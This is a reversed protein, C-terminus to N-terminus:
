IDPRTQWTATAPPRPADVGDDSGAFRHAYIMFSSIIVGARSPAPAHCLPPIAVIVAYLAVDAREGCARFRVSTGQRQAVPGAISGAFFRDQRLYDPTPPELLTACAGAGFSAALFFSFLIM